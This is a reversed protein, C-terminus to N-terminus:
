VLFGSATLFAVTMTRMEVNESPFSGVNRSSVVLYLLVWFLIDTVGDLSVQGVTKALHYSSSEVEPVLVLPTTFESTPNWNLHLLERLRDMGEFKPRM